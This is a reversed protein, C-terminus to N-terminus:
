RKARKRARLCPIRIAVLLIFALLFILALMLGGVSRVFGNGSAKGILMLVCGTIIWGILLYEFRIMREKIICRQERSRIIAAVAADQQAM